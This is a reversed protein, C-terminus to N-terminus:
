GVTKLWSLVEGAHGGPDPVPYFVREIRGNRVILTLRRLYTERGTTFAPLALAESFTGEADSLVPFPLRLRGALEQQYASTQRSLAFIRTDMKAFDQAADRFGELEPTSGHAGPITDWDPPNPCGPRGTWPYVAIVSRGPLTVLHVDEGTTAPLGVPPLAMGPMVHDAAGDEM